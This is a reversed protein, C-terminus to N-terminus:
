LLRHLFKLASKTTIGVQRSKMCFLEIAVQLEDFPGLIQDFVDQSKRNSFKFINGAEDGIWAYRTEWYNSSAFCMFQENKIFKRISKKEKETLRVEPKFDIYRSTQTKEIRIIKNIYDSFEEVESLKHEVPRWGERIEFDDLTKDIVTQSYM